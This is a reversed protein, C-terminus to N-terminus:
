GALFGGDGFGEFCAVAVDVGGADVAGLGGDAGGDLFGADGARFDEDRGFEPVIRVM